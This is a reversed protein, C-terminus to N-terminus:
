EYKEGNLAFEALISQVEEISLSAQVAIQDIPTGQQALARVQNKIIEHIARKESSSFKNNSVSPPLEVENVLLEEELVKLKKKVQYLEQHYQLSLNDVEEQILKYPDKLYFSTIFLAISLAILCIFVIGM